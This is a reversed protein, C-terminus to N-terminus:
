FPEKLNPLLLYRYSLGSFKPREKRFCKQIKSETLYSIKFMFNVMKKTYIPVIFRDKDVRFLGFPM